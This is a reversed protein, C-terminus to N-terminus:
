RRGISSLERGEQILTAGEKGRAVESRVLVRKTRQLFTSGEGLFIISDRRLFDVGGCKIFRGKVVMEETSQQSSEWSIQELEGRTQWNRRGPMKLGVRGGRWLVAELDKKSRVEWV